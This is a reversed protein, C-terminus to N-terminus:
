TILGHSVSSAGGSEGAERKDFTICQFREQLQSLMRTRRYLGHTEWADMSAAFGGPSFMLLPPGSGAVAYRTEIGDIKASAVSM